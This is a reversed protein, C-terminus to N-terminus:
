GRLLEAAAEDLARQFEPVRGPSGVCHGWPSDFVRLEARQMEAVEAANDEPAFYLDSRCPMVIARARISRLARKFDGMYIENHSIDGHQWTWIKALLNNADWKLHDEEWDRVFDELTAFGLQRYLAEGFFDHSYAWAVYVRGFARLGKEPPKVYNGDNWADDAQLAAKPGDLFAYNLSSCRAAGCYPLVAEVMNPYQAAWQYAQMGAMSWGLVLAVKRVGLGETLLRHQCAVNDFLTVQPFRPGGQLAGSNSPSSSYGNGFLNVSVVFHHAPDIARGAGFLPENRIHTGTYFTPLLVANDARPSLTGYTAYALRASNLVAGSQLRVDGLEFTSYGQMQLVDEGEGQLHFSAPM